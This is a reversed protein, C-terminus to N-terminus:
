LGLQLRSTAVGPLSAHRRQLITLLVRRPAQLVFTNRILCCPHSNAALFCFSIGYEPEHLVRWMSCVAESYCLVAAFYSPLKRMHGWLHADPWANHGLRNAHLRAPEFALKLFAGYPQRVAAAGHCHCFCTPGICSPDQPALTLGHESRLRQFIRMGTYPHKELWSVILDKYPDLKSPRKSGKSRPEYRAKDLWKRITKINLGTKAAIQAPTLKLEWSLRRVEHYTEFNIM